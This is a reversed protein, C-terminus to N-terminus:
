ESIRKLLPIPVTSTESVEVCGAGLVCRSTGPCPTAQVSPPLNFWARLPLLLLLLLLLVHSRWDFWLFVGLWGSAKTMLHVSAHVHALRKCCFLALATARVACNTAFHVAVGANSLGLSSVHPQQGQALGDLTVQVCRHMHAMRCAARQTHLEPQMGLIPRAARPGDFSLVWEDVASLQIGCPVGGGAGSDGACENM